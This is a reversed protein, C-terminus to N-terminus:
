WLHGVDIVLRSMGGPGELTFARFPLRARVGLGITTVNEFSGAYSVQRLTRYGAVNAINTQNAPTFSPALVTINLYAGGRLPVVAGSGQRFVQSVYGVRYGAHMGSIDLVLRDYCPHQGARVNVIPASTRAASTKALSGWTIGCYPAASASSPAVLGLGAILVIVALASRIRNM